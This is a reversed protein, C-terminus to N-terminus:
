GRKPCDERNLRDYWQIIEKRQNMLEEQKQRLIELRDKMYLITEANRTPGEWRIEKGRFLGLYMNEDIWQLAGTFTLGKMRMVYDTVSGGAGCGFCHWGKHDYFRFTERDDGHFPCRVPRSPDHDWGLKEAIQATTVRERIIKAAELITM